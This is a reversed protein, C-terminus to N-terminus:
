NKAVFFLDGESVQDATNLKIKQSKSIYYVNYGIKTLMNWLLKKSENSTEIQLTPKFKEIIPLMEPIIIREYGEVDCKIYDLKALDNFVTEPRFMTTEFEKCANEAETDNIIRTRGHSFYSSTKPVGMKVKINDSAGLAYPIIKINSHKLTNKTLIKRFEYVPEVSYIEGTEGVLNAFISSYYGLNAGLDIVTDGNKILNKVYYHCEFEKKNKLLNRRYLFLFVKSILSLYGELGLVKFLIRKIFNM